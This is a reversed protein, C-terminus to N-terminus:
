AILDASCQDMRMKNIISVMPMGIKKMKNYKALKPNDGKKAEKKNETSADSKKAASKAGFLADLANTNKKQEEKKETKDEKVKKNQKSKAGFLADLASMDKKKEEKKETKHETESEKQESISESSIQKKSQSLSRMSSSEPPPPPIGKINSNSDHNNLNTSSGPVGPLSRGQFLHRSSECQIRMITQNM